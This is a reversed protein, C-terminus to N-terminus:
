AARDRGRAALRDGCWPCLRWEGSVKQGCAPCDQLDPDGTKSEESPSGDDILM